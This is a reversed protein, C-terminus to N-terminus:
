ENDAGLACKIVYATMTLGAMKARQIIQRKQEITLRIRIQDIAPNSKAANRRGTNGHTKM